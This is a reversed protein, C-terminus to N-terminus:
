PWGVNAPADGQRHLAALDGRLRIREAALGRLEERAAALAREAAALRTGAAQEAEALVVTLRDTLAGLEAATTAAPAAPSIPAAQVEDLRSAAEDLYSLMTSVYDDVQQRDYGRLAPAFAPLDPM